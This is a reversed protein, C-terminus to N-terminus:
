VQPEQVAIWAKVKDDNLMVMAVIELIMPLFSGGLLGVVIGILSVTTANKVVKGNMVNMGTVIEFIGFALPLLPWLCCVYCLVGVGMSGIAIATIYFFLVVALGLSGLVNLIGAVLMLIGATKYNSPVDEM